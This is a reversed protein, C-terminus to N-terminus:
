FMKCYFQLLLSVFYINGCGYGVIGFCSFSCFCPQGWGALSIGNGDRDCTIVHLVPFGPHNLGDALPSWWWPQLQFLNWSWLSLCSFPILWNFVSKRPLLCPVGHASTCGGLLNIYNWGLATSLILWWLCGWISVGYILFCRAWTWFSTSADVIVVLLLGQLLIQVM